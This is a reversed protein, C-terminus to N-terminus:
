NRKIKSKRCCRYKYKTTWENLEQFNLGLEAYSGDGVITTNNFIGDNFNKDSTQTWTSAAQAYDQDIEHEFIFISVYGLSILLFM